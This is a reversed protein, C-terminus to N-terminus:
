LGMWEPGEFGMDQLAVALAFAEGMSSLDRGEALGVKLNDVVEDIMVVLLVVGAKLSLLTSGVKLTM